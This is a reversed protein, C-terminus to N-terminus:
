QADTALGRYAIDHDEILALGSSNSIEHRVKLFILPGTRGNKEKIEVIRSARHVADGVSLPRHIEIRGGAYLRRPLPVPPLFRGLHEHGDVGLASQRTLPLFFLWHWLLPLRDGPQPPPDDRDLTASLAQIPAVTVTDVRSATRGIWEEINM